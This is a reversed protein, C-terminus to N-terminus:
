IRMLRRLDRGIEYAAILAVFLVTVLISLEIHEVSITGQWTEANISLIPTNVALWISVLLFASSVGINLMLMTRSWLRVRLQWVSHAIAIVIVPTFWRLTNLAEATFLSRAGSDAQWLPYWILLVLFLMTALDTFISQLSIHQWSKSVSPLKEPSWECQKQAESKETRSIVAFGITIWSIAFYANALFDSAIAKVFLLLSMQAGSLWNTTVGITSLVFLVGFVVYLTNLYLPMLHTAILPKPPCFQLAVSRPNGMAKLVESVEAKSVSGHQEEIAEIKDLINANLERGIDERKKEPLERQVAAIYREVIDM